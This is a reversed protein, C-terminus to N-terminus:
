EEATRITYMRPPCGYDGKVMTLFCWGYREYFSTHDTVLYLTEIGQAAADARIGNLLMGALGRCRWEPEVYVACVNPTLDPRDHFDNEIVGAGGVINEAADLLMYWQPVATSGALCAAMSERYAEAPIGWKSSFWAVAKELAAPQERLPLLRLEQEKKIKSM